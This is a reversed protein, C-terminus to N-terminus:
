RTSAALRIVRLPRAIEKKAQQATKDPRGEKANAKAANATTM